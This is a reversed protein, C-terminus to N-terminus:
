FCICYFCGTPSIWRCYNVRGRVGIVTCFDFVFLCPHIHYVPALEPIPTSVLTLLKLGDLWAHNFTSAKFAQHLQMSVLKAAPSQSTRDGNIAAALARLSEEFDSKGSTQTFSRYFIPRSRQLFLLDTVINLM